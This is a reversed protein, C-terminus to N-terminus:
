TCFCLPEMKRPTFSCHTHHPPCLHPSGDCLTQVPCRCSPSCEAERIQRWEGPRKPKGWRKRMVSGWVSSPEQYKRRLCLDLDGMKQASVVPHSQGGSLQCEWGVPREPYKQFSRTVSSSFSWLLISAAWATSLTCASPWAAWGSTGATTGGAEQGHSM